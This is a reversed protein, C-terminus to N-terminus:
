SAVGVNKMLPTISVSNEPSPRRAAMSLANALDPFFGYTSGYSYISRRYSGTSARAEALKGSAEALKGSAEALKGSAEALPLPIKFSNAKASHNPQAWPFQNKKSFGLKKKRSEGSALALLLHPVRLIISNCRAMRIFDVLSFRLNLHRRHQAALNMVATNTM